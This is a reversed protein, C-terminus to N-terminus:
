VAVCEQAAVRELAQVVETATPYRDEPQKALLRIVVAELGAPIDPRSQSPPAPDSDRILAVTELM